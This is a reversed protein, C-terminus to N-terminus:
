RATAGPGPTSSSCTPSVGSASPASSGARTTRIPRGSRCGSPGPVSHTPRATRGVPRRAARRPQRRRRALRRRRVRPRRAHLHVSPRRARGPHGPRTRYQRYRRRYDDLTKCEHLPDFPRGIDAGPTQNKPPTNSAEYIHRRPPHDRRPRRTRGAPRLRQLLRRQVQRVVGPSVSALSTTLRCRGPGVSRAFARRAGRFRVPLPSGAELGRVDIAVTWDRDPRRSSKAQRASATPSPM